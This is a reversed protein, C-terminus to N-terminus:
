ARHPFKARWFKRWCSKSGIEPCFSSTLPPPEPGVSLSVFHRLHKTTATSFTVTTKGSTFLVLSLVRKAVSDGSTSMPPSQAATVYASSMRRSKTHSLQTFLDDRARQLKAALKPKHTARYKDQDDVELSFLDGIKPLLPTSTGLLLGFEYPSSVLRFKGLSTLPYFAESCLSISYVDIEMGQGHILIVPTSLGDQFLGDVVKKGMVVLKKYDAFMGFAAALIPELLASTFTDENNGGGLQYWNTHAWLSAESFFNSVARHVMSNRIAQDEKFWEQTTVFDCTASQACLQAGFNQESPSICSPKADPFIYKVVDSSIDEPLVSVLLAKTIVFNVLGYYLLGFPTPNSSPTVNNYFTELDTEVVRPQNVYEAISAEPGHLSPLNTEKHAILETGEVARGKRQELWRRHKFTPQYVAKDETTKVVNRIETLYHDTGGLTSILPDPLKDESLRRYKVCSLENLKFALLQIRYGDTKISGRLAYGKSSYSAKLNFDKDQINSIHVTMDGVSMRHASRSWDKRKRREDETFRGIDTLLRNILEGPDLNKLWGVVDKQPIRTPDTFSPLTPHAYSQLQKRLTVDPWFIRVLEDESLNIFKRGRTVNTIIALKKRDDQESHHLEGNPGQRSQFSRSRERALTGEEEAASDSGTKPPLYDKAKHLFLGVAASACANKTKQPASAKYIAVLLSLFFAEPSNKNDISAQPNNKNDSPKEEPNPTIGNKAEEIEQVSFYPTLYSFITRDVEDLHDVSLNELYQGVAQQCRRKTRSALKSIDSLCTTIAHQLKQQLEADYPIEKKLARSTNAKLTGIDLTRLPHERQMAKVLQFKTMKDAAPQDKKPTSKQKKRPRPSTAGVNTSPGAETNPGAETSTGTSTTSNPNKASEANEKPLKWVYQKFIDPKEHSILRSRTKVAYREQYWWHGIKINKPQNQPALSNDALRQTMEQLENIPNQIHPLTLPTFQQLTFIQLASDFIREIPHKSSVTTNELYADVLEQVSANKLTDETELARIVKFNGKVGMKHVGKGYDNQTVIGLTTLGTRSLELQRLLDSVHYVLYRDRGFPRWITNINSYVLADSDRTIVVDDQKYSSGICTDAESRCGCVIWGSARLHQVLAQRLEHTLYFSDVIAKNLTKFQQKRLKGHNNLTEEIITLLQNGKTLAKDRKSQRNINTANKEVPSPGDMHLITTSKPFLRSILHQEFKVCAVTTNPHLFCRRIVSFFSGLIDIHYQTNPPPITPFARIPAIYGQEKTFPWLKLVGM